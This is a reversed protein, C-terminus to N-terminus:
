RSRARRSSAWRCSAGRGWRWRRSPPGKRACRTRPLDGPSGPPSPARRGPACRAARARRGSPPILASAAGGVLPKGRRRGVPHHRVADAAKCPPLNVCGHSGAGDRYRTGGFSSQWDADHLGIVNGVFPMWYQVTRSTIKSGDHDRLGQAELPKAKSTSGTCARPRTTRRRQSHGDRMPSEWILAGTEDYFRSTSSPCTSTATACRGLGARRSRQLATGVTTTCPM